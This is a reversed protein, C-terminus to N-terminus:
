NLPLHGAFSVWSTRAFTMETGRRGAGPVGSGGRLPLAAAFVLRSIASDHSALSSAAM